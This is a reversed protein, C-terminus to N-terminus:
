TYRMVTRRSVGLQEAAQDLTHGRALLLRADEALLAPSVRARRIQPVDAAPAVDARYNTTTIRHVTSKSIQHHRAIDGVSYGDEAAGKIEAVLRDPLPRM